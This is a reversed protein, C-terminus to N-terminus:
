RCWSCSPHYLLRSLLIIYQILVHGSVYNQTKTTTGTDSCPNLSCSRYKVRVGQCYKGGNTPVPNNCERKSLQIGGGCTRSCSAFMSWKGWRGDVQFFVVAILMQQMVSCDLRIIFDLVPGHGTKGECYPSRKWLVCRPWLGTWGWLTHWRGLSLTSDHVGFPRQVKRHVVSSQVSTAHLSLAQLSRWIGARVSPGLQLVSRAVCGAPGTTESAPRAFM